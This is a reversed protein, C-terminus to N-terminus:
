KKRKSKKVLIYVSAAMGIILVLSTILSSVPSSAGFASFGIVSVSFLAGFFNNGCHMASMIVVSKTFYYSALSIIGFILVIATAVMNTSYVLTHMLTFGVSGIILAILFSATNPFQYHKCIGFALAFPLVLFVLNEADAVGFGSTMPGGLYSMIGFSPYSVLVSGSAMVFGGVGFFVMLWVPIIMKATIPSDKSHLNVNFGEEPKKEVKAINGVMAALVIASATLFLHFYYSLKDTLTAITAYNLMVLNDFLIIGLVILIGNRTQKDTGAFTFALLASIGLLLLQIGGEWLMYGIQRAQLSNTVYFIDVALLIIGLLIALYIVKKSDM